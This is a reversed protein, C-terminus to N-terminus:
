SLITTCSFFVSRIPRATTSARRILGSAGSIRRPCISREIEDQPWAGPDLFDVCDLPGIGPPNRHCVIQFMVLVNNQRHGAGGVSEEAVGDEGPLLHDAAIVAARVFQTRVDDAGALAAFLDHQGPLESAFAAALQRLPPTQSQGVDPIRAGAIAAPVFAARMTRLLGTDALDIEIDVDVHALPPLAAFRLRPRTPDLRPGPKSHHRRKRSGGIMGYPPNEGTRSSPLSKLHRRGSKWARKLRSGVYM